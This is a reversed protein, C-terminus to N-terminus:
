TMLETQATVAGYGRRIDASPPPAAGYPQATFYAGYPGKHRAKPALWGVGFRVPTAIAGYGRWYLAMDAGYRAASM